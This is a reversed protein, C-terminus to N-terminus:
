TLIIPADITSANAMSVTDNNTFNGNMTWATINDATITGNNTFNGDVNAVWTGSSTTTITGNNTLNAYYTGIQNNCLTLTPSSGLPVTTGNAITFTYNASGTVTRNIAVEDFTVGAADVSFNGKVSGDFMVSAGNTFTSGSDVVLSGTITWTPSAATTFSSGASNTFTGSSSDYNNVDITSASAMSVTDNNTFNGNMTWATISDATITGNNTFTGDVSAVWTGSSTTTITGNNTLNAYYTGIQNNCLTLTPSSGLPVTTGNAITFTYNASGTVTRNIAVEDFTVGAADVSFNGKVSGDFTVSAGNTFTSGGDVVLSGTITWTPSAANSFSSGASNIFTGLSDNYNNVDITSANAM